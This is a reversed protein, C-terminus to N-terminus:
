AIMATATAGAQQGDNILRTEVASGAQDEGDDARRNTSPQALV